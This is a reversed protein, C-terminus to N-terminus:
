RCIINCENPTNGIKVDFDKIPVTGIESESSIYVIDSKKINKMLFYNKLKWITDIYNEEPDDEVITVGLIVKGPKVECYNTNIWHILNDNKHQMTFTSNPCPKPMDMILKGIFEYATM